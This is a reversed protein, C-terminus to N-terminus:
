IIRSSSKQDQRTRKAAEAECECKIKMEEEASLNSARQFIEETKKIVNKMKHKTTSGQLFNLM